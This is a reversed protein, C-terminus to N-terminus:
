PQGHGAHDIGRPSRLDQIAGRLLTCSKAAATCRDAATGGRSLAGESHPGSPTGCRLLVGAARRLQSVSPACSSSCWYRAARSSSSTRRTRALVAGPPRLYVVPVSGDRLAYTPADSEAAKGVRRTWVRFTGSPTDIPIM